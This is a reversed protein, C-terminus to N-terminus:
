RLWGKSSVGTKNIATVIEHVKWWVFLGTLFCSFFVPLIFWFVQLCFGLVFVGVALANITVVTLLPVSNSGSMDTAVLFLQFLIISWTLLKMPSISSGCRAITSTTHSRSTTYNKRTPSYM